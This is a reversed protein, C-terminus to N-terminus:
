IWDNNPHLNCQTWEHNQAIDNIFHEHPGCAKHRGSEYETIVHFAPELAECIMKLQEEDSTHIEQILNIDVEWKIIWYGKNATTKRTLEHRPTAAHEFMQRYFEPLDEASFM